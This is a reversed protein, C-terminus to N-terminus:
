VGAGVTVASVSDGEDDDDAVASDAVGDALETADAEAAAFVPLALADFEGTAVYTSTAGGVLLADLEGAAVLTAPATVVGDADDDNAGVADAAMADGDADSDAKAMLDPEAETVGGGDHVTAGDPV